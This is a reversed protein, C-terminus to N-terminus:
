KLVNKLGEEFDRYYPKYNRFIDQHITNVDLSFAFAERVAKEFRFQLWWLPKQKIPVKFHVSLIEVFKKQTIAPHTFVNYVHGSKGNKAFYKIQGACDKVHIFSMLNDGKGYVPVVNKQWIPNLYFAKLWSGPGYIWCPRVIIVPIQKENLVKLVPEEALFYEKQFSTPNLPFTEDTKKNGHSGYVLTGSVFVLLPPNDLTKLWNILKQNAVANKLAAELRSKKSRGPMRATHFIVDPLDKELQKWDFDFLSYRITEINNAKIALPSKNILCKLQVEDATLEKLLYQGVYGSGGLVFAKNINGHM